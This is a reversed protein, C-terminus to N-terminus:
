IPWFESGAVCVGFGFAIASLWGCARGPMAKKMAASVEALIPVKADEIEAGEQAVAIFYGSLKGLPELMARNARQGLFASLLAAFIGIVFCLCSYFITAISFSDSGVIAITAGGNIALLSAILWRFMASHEELIARRAEALSVLEYEAARSVCAAIDPDIAESTM